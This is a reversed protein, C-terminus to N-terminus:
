ALLVVILYVVYLGEFLKYDVPHTGGVSSGYLSLAPLVGLFLFLGFVLLILKDKLGLRSGLQRGTQGRKKPQEKFNQSSARLDATV